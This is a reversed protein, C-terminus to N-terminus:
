VAALEEELRQRRALDAYLGDAAMLQEHRGRDVVRGRQLVLVLDAEKVASIRHSAVFVTRGVFVQRLNRLIEEETAADVASLCDDLLLIDPQRL